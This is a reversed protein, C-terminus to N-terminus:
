SESGYRLADYDDSGAVSCQITGASVNTALPQFPKSELYEHICAEPSGALAPNAGSSDSSNRSALTRGNQITM